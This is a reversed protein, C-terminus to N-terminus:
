DVAAPSNEGAELVHFTVPGAFSSASPSRQVPQTMKVGKGSHSHSPPDEQAVNAAEIKRRTEALMLLMSGDEYPKVSFIWFHACAAIFMECCIIFDQMGVQISGVDFQSGDKLIGFHALAALGVSQWFSFMVLLKVSLIQRLPKFPELVPILAHYIWIMCYIAVIQSCNVIITTYVYVNDAAFIGEEYHGTQTAIMATVACAPAIISYQLVGRKLRWVFADTVEVEGFCCNMPPPWHQHTTTIRMGEIVGKHGGVYKSMLMTLSYIVYAEYVSLLFDFYSSFRLFTLGLWSSLSYVPVLMLIRILWRQSPPHVWFRRHQRIQHFSILCAALGFVGAIVEATNHSNNSVQSVTVRHFGLDTIMFAACVIVGLIALLILAFHVVNTVHWHRHTFTVNGDVDRQVVRRYLGCLAFEETVHAGTAPYVLAGTEVEIAPVLPSSLSEESPVPQQKQSINASATSPDESSARRLQSREEEEEDRPM